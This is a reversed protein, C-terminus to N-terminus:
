AASKNSAEVKFVASEVPALRSVSAQLAADAAPAASLRLTAMAATTTSYPWEGERGRRVRLRPPLQQAAAGADDRTRLAELQEGRVLAQLRRLRSLSISSRPAALHAMFAPPARANGDLRRAM